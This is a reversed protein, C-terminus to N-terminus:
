DGLRRPDGSLQGPTLGLHERWASWGRKIPKARADGYVKIDGMVAYGHVRVVPVNMGPAAELVDVKKDGMFAFGDLDVDVGDPVIIKVDGMVSGVYDDAVLVALEDVPELLLTPVKTAAEK